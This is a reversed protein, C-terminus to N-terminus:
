PGGRKEIEELDGLHEPTGEFSEYDAAIEDLIWNMRESEDYLEPV